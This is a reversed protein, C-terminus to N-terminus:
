GIGNRRLGRAIMSVSSPAVGITKAIVNYAMGSRALERIKLVTEPLTQKRNKPTRGHRIKDQENQSRTGWYLNVLRDDTRTGNEHAAEHKPTPRPGYFALCILYPVTIMWRKGNISLALMRYGNGKCVRPKITKGGKRRITGFSSAEYPYGPIDAWLEM